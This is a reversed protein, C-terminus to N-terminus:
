GEAPVRTPTSMDPPVAEADLEAASAVAKPPAFGDRESVAAKSPRSSVAQHGAGPSRPQILEVTEPPRTVMVAVSEVTTRTTDPESVRSRVNSAPSGRVTLTGPSVTRM